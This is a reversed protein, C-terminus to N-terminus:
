KGYTYAEKILDHKELMNAIYKLHERSFDKEYLNSYKGTNKNIVMIFSDCEMRLLFESKLEEELKCFKKWLDLSKNATTELDDNAIDFVTEIDFGM